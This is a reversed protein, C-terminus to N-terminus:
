FLIWGYGLYLSIGIHVSMILVLFLALLAHVTRWAGMLRRLSKYFGVQLRLRSLRIVADRFHEFPHDDSFSRRARRLLLRLRLSELPVTAIALLFMGQKPEALDAILTRLPAPDASARLMPDLKEKLREWRGLLTALEEARGGKTPVLGFLYRGVVGTLVVILLSGATATALDNRSQFAAHFSIVVPSLFGVFVHFTLWTRLNGLGKLRQWRKRVAYVFNSLMVATAVLGIGHGITGAPRLAAHLPSKLREAYPLTYYDLGLYALAAVVLAGIAFLIVGLRTSGEKKEASGRRGQAVPKAEVDGHARKVSIRAKELFGLPLEGGVSVIVYDNPIALPKGGCDLTVRDEEIARVESPLLMRIRGRAALEEIRTKNRPKARALAAGRYSLTVEADSEDALSIAAELASDGGGVVLVQCGEYQAPDYLSYAVKDREEGPVGLRRPTGRRGIAVVVKRARVDGKTTRLVFAGDDGDLGEVKTGEEVHISGKEVMKRFQALLEEKSILKKGFKGHLPLEVTETMVVKQRPYNAVTGGLSAQELVRFSLSAARCGLATALGAPGAGIVAVDVCGPPAQGVMTASFREACELGQRIANKILGMGGLEGVIHVGRRSSEFFEDVEPLDVGREATGFVLKIADVPCESACKGHGICNGAEILRAAGDVVGLIDGEPCSRLCSLSGICIDTDIVPHLSAPIHRGEAVALRYAAGHRKGRRWSRVLLAALTAVVLALASSLGITDLDM